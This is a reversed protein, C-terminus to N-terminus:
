SVRRRRAIAKINKFLQGTDIFRHSFGKIKVTTKSNGGYDRRLIPNRVIAQLLNQCRTREGKGSCLEFFSKSFKNIDANKKSKFPHTFINIGTRRRVSASVQAVSLPGPKRSVKRAKVGSFSKFGANKSKPQLHPRDQLVGVDFQYKEFRGRVRTLFRRDLQMVVSSPM